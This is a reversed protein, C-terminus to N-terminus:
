RGEPALELVVRIEDRLDVVQASPPRGVLVFAERLDQISGLANLAGVFSWMGQVLAASSLAMGALALVTLTFFPGLLVVLARNRPVPQPTWCYAPWGLSIHAEYGMVRYTFYHVLEHLTRVALWVALLGVIWVPPIAVGNLMPWVGGGFFLGAVLGALGAGSIGLQEDVTRRLIEVRTPAAGAEGAGIEEARQAVIVVADGGQYVIVDWPAPGVAGKPAERREHDPRRFPILRGVATVEGPAAASPLTSVGTEKGKYRSLRGSEANESLDPTFLGSRRLACGARAPGFTRGRRGM